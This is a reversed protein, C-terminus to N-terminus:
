ETARKAANQTQRTAKQANEVGQWAANQVHETVNQVNELGQQTVTQAADLAQQYYSFPTRWLDIYANMSERTLTQFAEQQQRTQGAVNQLLTRTAETHSKLLDIWGQFLSQAFRANRDQIAVTTDVVAQFAGQNQQPQETLGQLLSRTSEADSKLVEIGNEFVGQAFKINREQAALATEAITKNTGNLSRTLSLAAENVKNEAM